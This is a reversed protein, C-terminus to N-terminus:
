ISHRRRQRWVVHSSACLVAISETYQSHPRDPRLLRQSEASQIMHAATLIALYPGTGASPIRACALYIGDGATADATAVGNVFPTPVSGSGM